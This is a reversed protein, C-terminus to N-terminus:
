GITKTVSLRNSSSAGDPNEITWTTAPAGALNTNTYFDIQYQSASNSVVNASIQPAFVQQVVGNSRIVTVDNTTLGGTYYKLLAPTSLEASPYAQDIQFYGAS